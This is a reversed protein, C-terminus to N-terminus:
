GVEAPDEFHERLLDQYLSFSIIRDTIDMVKGTAM